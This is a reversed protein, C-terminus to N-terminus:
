EGIAMWYLNTPTTNTRTLWLTAGTTAVPNVGVGTVAIGPYITEPTVTVVPPSAFAGDPFTINVSTPENAATPPVNVIGSLVVPSHRQIVTVRRNQEVCAVREGVQLGGVMPIPTFPLPEFDGDLQVRVPNVEVVTALRLVPARSFRQKIDRIENLLQTWISDVM